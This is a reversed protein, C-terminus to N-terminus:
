TLHRETKPVSALPELEFNESALPSGNIGFRPGNIRALRVSGARAALIWLEDGNDTSFNDENKGLKQADNNLHQNHNIFNPFFVSTKSFIRCFSSFNESLFVGNIQFHQCNMYTIFWSHIFINLLISAWLAFTSTAIGKRSVKTAIVLKIGLRVLDIEYCKIAYFVARPAFNKVKRKHTPFWSKPVSLQQVEFLNQSSGNAGTSKPDRWYLGASCLGCRVVKKLVAM